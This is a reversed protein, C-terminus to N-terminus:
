VGPPIHGIGVQDARGTGTGGCAPPRPRRSAHRLTLNGDRDFVLDGGMQSTQPEPARHGGAGPALDQGAGCFRVYDWFVRLPLVARLGRRGLGVPIRRGCIHTGSGDLYRALQEPRAFTIVAVRAGLEAIEGDFERLQSLHEQCYLRGLYRLLVLISPRGLLDGAPFRHGTTLLDFDLNIRM